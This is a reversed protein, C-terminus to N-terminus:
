LNYCKVADEPLLFRQGRRNVRALLPKLPKSGNSLTSFSGVIILKSKARTLAVNMRRMDALLRGVKHCSNSRVTSLIIVEKDRGQYRDITSLELGQKKWNCMKTEEEFIRLQARFPCIVGVNEPSVGCSVLGAIIISVLSVETRNIVNGGSKGGVNSELPEMVFEEENTPPTQRPSKKVNDTDVFVVSKMPDVVARLWPYAKASAAKPLSKPFGQLQLARSKVAENGCKLRGGYVAESSLRCIASNMRYQYTLTAIAKPHKEALRQLMSVGYGGTEAIQSNVLPPLQKHDGVLVFSDAAVLVGLIAPQSIQGAEDIIVVDFNEHTLLPSRPVSLASACVIRASSVVKRLSEVSPDKFNQYNETQTLSNSGRGNSRDVELALESAILSRVAQHCSSRKGIRILQSSPCSAAVSGVGKEMLKMVVNDVASHTYSAILVRKGRAALLRAIFALTTTKGTGPLGQLLTYDSASVVKVVADKQDSNLSSFETSLAKMDCGNLRPANTTFISDLTFAEHFGPATLRVILDRLRPLRTQKAIRVQSLQDGEKAAYDATLFNILNQRLTTIGVSSSDKDFRFCLHPMGEGHTRCFKKYQLTLDRMRELDERGTLLMFRDFHVEEVVGRLVHMRNRFRKGGNQSSRSERDESSHVLSTTDTSVVVHSGKSLALDDLPSQSLSFPARQFTLLVHDQNPDPEAQVYILGSVSDRGERERKQAESLWATTMLQNSADAEVDILRDWNRFYDLDSDHLQGIFRSLLAAHSVGIAWNPDSLTKPETAAYVMCERNMYCRECGSQPSPLVEPLVAPPPPLLKASPAVWNEDRNGDDYSLVIGRPRSSRQLGSAVVNRQGLLSKTENLLPSVHSAAIGQANLYLLLGGAAAGAPGAIVNDVDSLKTRNSGYRTQLMLTYLALQAMHANQTRQNHGTKLELCMLSNQPFPNRTENPMLPKDELEVTAAELVGDINGKLALEPSVIPEEISHVKHTLFKINSQYGNGEIRAANSVANSDPIEKGFNSYQGVFNQIIPVVKLVEQQAELTSVGCGLLGEANERVMNRIARKAFRMDYKNERLCLGFLEHRMTGFLPAKATLGTSGIRSKLVARRSCTVTESISTPIMLIDPHIVLVLDDYDSDQPPPNHLIIPLAKSDTRFKGSLSCLHVIDGPELPTYYWEGRLHLLGDPKYKHTRKGQEEASQHAIDEEAKAITVQCDRHYDKEKEIEKRMEDTWVAVSLTKTYSTTDDVVDIVKYRAFDIYSDEQNWGERRPNRIPANMPLHCGMSADHPDQTSRKVIAQDMADFDLEPFDGFEDAAQDQQVDDRPLQTMAADIADLDLPPLCGFEDEESNNSPSSSHPEYIINQKVSTTTTATTRPKQQELADLADLADLDLHPLSGFEDVETPSQIMPKTTTLHSRAHDISAKTTAVPLQKAAADDNDGEDENVETSSRMSLLNDLNAMVDDGFDFDGFDDEEEEMMSADNKKKSEISQQQQHHHHTNVNGAMPKPPAKAVPFSNNTSNPASTSVLPPPPRSTTQTAATINKTKKKSYPNISQTM